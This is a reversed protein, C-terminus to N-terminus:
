DAIAGELQNKFHTTQLNCILMILLDNTCTQYEFKSIFLLNRTKPILHLEEYIESLINTQLPIGILRSDSRRISEQFSNNSSQLNVNNDVFREYM